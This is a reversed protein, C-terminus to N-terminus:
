YVAAPKRLLLTINKRRAEWIRFIRFDLFGLDLCFIEGQKCFGIGTPKIAM